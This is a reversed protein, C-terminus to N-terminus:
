TATHYLPELMSRYVLCLNNACTCFTNQEHIRCFLSLDDANNECLATCCCFLFLPFINFWLNLTPGFFFIHFGINRKSSEHNTHNLFTFLLIVSATIVLFGMCNTLNWACLRKLTCYAYVTMIGGGVGGGWREKTELFLIRVMIKFSIRIGNNMSNAFSFIYSLGSEVCYHALLIWVSIALIILCSSQQTDLFIRLVHFVQKQLQLNNSPSEEVFLTLNFQLTFYVSWIGLLHLSWM